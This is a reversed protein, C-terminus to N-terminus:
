RAGLLEALGLRAVENEPDAKIAKEFAEIAQERDGQKLHLSGLATLIDSEEEALEAARNLIAVAKSLDGKLEESKSFRMLRFSDFCHEWLEQCWPDYPSKDFSLRDKELRASRAAAVDGTFNAMEEKLSYFEQIEPDEKISQDIQVAAERFREELYLGQALRFRAWAMWDVRDLLKEFEEASDLIHGSELYMLGLMYRSNPYDGDLALAKEFAQIAPKKDQYDRTALGLYYSWRANKSRITQLASFCQRAESSFGNALYLKGLTALGEVRSEKDELERHAKRLAELFPKQWSALNPIAPIGMMLELEADMLSKDLAPTEQDIQRMLFALVVAAAVLFYFQKPLRTKM